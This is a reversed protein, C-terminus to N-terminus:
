LSPNHKIKNFSFRIFAFLRKRALEFIASFAFILIISILALLIFCPSHWQLTDVHFINSWLLRRVLPHEHILYVSFTTSALINIKTNIYKKGSLFFLSLGIISVTGFFCIGVISFLGDLSHVNLWSINNFLVYLIWGILGFFLYQSRKKQCLMEENKKILAGFIYFVLGNIIGLYVAANYRVFSYYVLLIIIFYLTKYGGGIASIANNLVPKMMSIIIYVSIFWYTSNAVPNVCSLISDKLNYLDFLGCIGCAIYIFLGLISYFLTDKVIQKININNSQIGFYGMILFFLGVGVIGGPMLLQAIIKNIVSGQQYSLHAIGSDYNQMVGYYVYHHAVIMLMSVIRLIEINTNRKSEKQM